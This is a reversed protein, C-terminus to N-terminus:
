GSAGTTGKILTVCEYISKTTDITIVKIGERKYLEDIAIDYLRQALNYDYPCTEGHEEIRQMAINAPAKCYVVVFDNSAKMTEINKGYQTGETWAGYKIHKYRIKKNNDPNNLEEILNENNFYITEVKTETKLTSNSDAIIEEKEIVEEVHKDVTVNNEVLVEEEIVEEVKPEEVPEEIKAVIGLDNNKLKYAKTEENKYVQKWFLKTKILTLAM